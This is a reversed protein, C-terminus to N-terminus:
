RYSYFRGAPRNQTITAEEENEERELDGIFSAAASVM